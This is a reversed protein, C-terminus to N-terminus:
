SLHKRVTALLLDYDLPKQVYDDLGAKKFDDLTYNKYNGTIAVIPIGAKEKDQLSRIAKTCEIGDMVPMNIDMLILDFDEKELSDLVQKGNKVAKIEYNEFMLVNKTLNIIVSSDEAVLVKRSKTM